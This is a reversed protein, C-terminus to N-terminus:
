HHHPVLTQKGVDGPPVVRILQMMGRDEHALMHCHLVYSGVFDVFRHRITVRGKTLTGDSNLVAAPIAIVDQWVYNGGPQYHDGSAPDFIEVVQFPNIHIHFPHAIGLTSNTLTWEEVANLVIEQDYHEGSFKKNNILFQPAKPGINGPGTRTPDDWGFDLPERPKAPNTPSPQAEAATIDNLFGPLDPFEDRTPFEMSMPNGTVNLTVVVDPKLPNTTDLLQFTFVGPTPPAKVLIDMRNGPAFSAPRPKGTGMFNLIPQAIFNDRSFQVGDQATQRNEPLKAGSASVFGVVTTVAKITANIMRWLQIEGPRMTISPATQGNVLLSSSSFFNGLAINGKAMNPRDGINHIVLVKETKKLDPYVRELAADYDGEIIFAGVMGNMVNIATSGHKHAHYWQTGPCQGMRFPKGQPGETYKTLDYCFPYAGIQYQPWLGQDIREKTPPWLKSGDPLSADTDYKKLLDAQKDRWTQPLDTWKAPPGGDFIKQFEGKVMAETVTLDPRLQLLVNDGLGDPTVHTGHFHMNTTSSGHFCNPAGDGTQGPYLVEQPEDRFLRDCGRPDGPPVKDGRDIGTRAFDRVDIHNLFTIEVRDGVSARLTPGPVPRPCDAPPWILNGSPDKAEFYRLAREIAQQGAPLDGVRWVKSRTSMIARLKGGQSRVEGLKVLAGATDGCGAPQAAARWPWATMASGVMASAGVLMERRTTASANSKSLQGEGREAGGDRILQVFSPPGASLM